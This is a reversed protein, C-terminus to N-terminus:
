WTYTSGNTVLRELVSLQDLVSQIRAVYASSHMADLYANCFMIDMVKKEHPGGCEYKAPITRLMEYVAATVRGDILMSDTVSATAPSDYAYVIEYVGDPFEDDATGAAVGSVKLHAMTLPFVLDEHSTHTVATLFEEHLDIQDYTTETGDSLTIKIDLTLPHAGTLSTISAVTPNTGQGWSTSRYDGSTDSVTLLKNDNRELVSCTLTFAM